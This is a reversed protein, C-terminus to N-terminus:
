AWRAVYVDWQRDGRTDVLDSAESHFVVSHGDGSISACCSFSDPDGGGADVSVRITTVAELDRVFVDADGNGDGAVLDSALSSFAVFRGNASIWPLSSTGNPEGGGSDVSARLTAGAALDRVFVDPLGNADQAVLDSAFSWFAVAGGDGSVSPGLSQGNSDGGGVDASARVTTGAVLDRVFVDRAGNGDVAVLDSADSSFAVYRGDPSISPELSGGNPDGGDVDVSARVTTGAVLDRVFIDSAPNGDGAVLDSAESWFAVYRGDGSISPAFSIGNADAGGVDVSARITLGALLDRVFVDTEGNGDGAVLDSAPSAFSVFRGNRSLAPPDFADSAGDNPDGGDLDVNARVTIGTEVDRVFVDLWQAAHDDAVLDGAFSFFAVHRGDASISSTYSYGRPDGGRRTVSVQKTSVSALAAHADALFLGLSLFAVLTISPGRPM